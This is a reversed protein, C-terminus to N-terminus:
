RFSKTVRLERGIGCLTHYMHLRNSFYGFVRGSGCLTQVGEVSLMSEYEEKRVNM